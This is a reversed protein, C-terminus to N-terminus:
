PNEELTIQSSNYPAIGGLFLGKKRMLLQKSLNSFYFSESLIYPIKSDFICVRASISNHKITESPYRFIENNSSDQLLITYVSPFACSEFCFSSPISKGLYYNARKALHSSSDVNTCSSTLTYRTAGNRDVFSISKCLKPTSSDSPTNCNSSVVHDVKDRIKRLKVEILSLESDIETRQKLNKVVSTTRKSLVAVVLALASIISISVLIAMLSYGHCDQIINRNYEKM